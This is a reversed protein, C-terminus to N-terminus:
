FPILIYLALFFRVFMHSRGEQFKDLIGLLTENWPIFPVKNLQLNRIPVADSHSFNLSRPSLHAYTHEGKPDLLVLQKVLLVGLMRQVKQTNVGVGGTKMGLPADVEEYVPISHVSIPIQYYINDM